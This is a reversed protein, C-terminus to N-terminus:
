FLRLDERAVPLALDERLAVLRRSLRVVEISERLRAGTRGELRRCQALLAELSGFQALLRAATRWGIGPCGPVNDAADGTLALADGLQAPVVGFREQVWRADHWCRRFHDRVRVRESALQCLDKDTSLVVVPLDAAQRALSALVDDAEVDPVSLTQMGLEHLGHVFRPLLAAFGPPAPSRNAKYAPYIRHRFTPGGHDFVATAHTPAHEALARRVSGLASACAHASRQAEEPQPCAEYIRRALNTADILLVSM